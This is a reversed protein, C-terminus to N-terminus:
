PSLIKNKWCAGITLVHLLVFFIVVTMSRATIKWVFPKSYMKVLIYMLRHTYIQSYKNTRSCLIFVLLVVGM